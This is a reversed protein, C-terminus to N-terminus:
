KVATTFVARMPAKMPADGFKEIIGKEIEAKIQPVLEPSRKMLENYMTGAYALGTAVEGASVSVATKDVREITIDEFGAQKLQYNIEADDNMGFAAKYSEPLNGGLYKNAMTRQILSTGNLELKDWTAFMLQGGFRLVRYAESFAKVKDPVFMYGFCCVVLDATNNEFPLQQADAVQWEISMDRLKEKAVALMDPSIDTAILKAEPKMVKRLQRTVRGTGCALEIALKVESPAVRSAVELAYPEFYVPGQYKDYHEPVSGSYVCTESM